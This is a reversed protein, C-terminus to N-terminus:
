SAPFVTAQKRNYRLSRIGGQRVFSTRALPSARPKAFDNPLTSIKRISERNEPSDLNIYNLHPYENRALTTKGTQRAGTLIILRKATPEPLFQQWFRNKLEIESMM